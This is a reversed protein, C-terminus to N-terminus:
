AVTLSSDLTVRRPIFCDCLFCFQVAFHLFRVCFVSFLLESETTLQTVSSRSSYHALSQESSNGSVYMIHCDPANVNSLLTIALERVSYNTYIQSLEAGVSIIKIM